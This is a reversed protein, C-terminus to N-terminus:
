QPIRQGRRCPHPIRHQRRIRSRLICRRHSRRRPCSPWGLQWSQTGCRSTCSAGDIQAAYGVYEIRSVVGETLSVQEGGMPFGIAQVTSGIAPITENLTLPPHKAHFEERDSEKRLEIIALDIGQAIGIVQARIKESSNPPQVFIQSAMEVVHANTLIRNGDIVFGTGSIESPSQKIWPSEFDPGRQTTFIKVVSDRIEVSDDAVALPTAMSIATLAAALALAPIHM